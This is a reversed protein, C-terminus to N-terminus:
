SNVPSALYSNITFKGEDDLDGHWIENVLLNLREGEFISDSYTEAQLRIRLKVEYGNEADTVEVQEVQHECNPKFTARAQRYWDRFGAHGIFNGEPMQLSIDSALYSLFFSEDEPLLDFKSFWNSVFKEILKNPSYLLNDLQEILSAAHAEAHSNVAELTNYVDPIYVMRHSYVPPQYNMGALYATQELPKMLEEIRFHNYGTPAYAEEPGGITFSLIFDKGKLKDGQAGYAFNYSFTDDIWKKLLAPVSYWYFPFQLVVVDAELLAQQEAAVDINYDPYLQDLRRIDVHHHSESLRQLIVKNANSSQLEPHGSIVVVQSM